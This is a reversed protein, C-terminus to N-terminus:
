KEEYFRQQNEYYTEPIPPIDDEVNDDDVVKKDEGIVNLAGEYVISLVDPPFNEEQEVEPESESESDFDGRLMREEIRLMRQEIERQRIEELEGEKIEENPDRIFEAIPPIDDEDVVKKDEQEVNQRKINNINSSSVVVPLNDIRNQVSDLEELLYKLNRREERPKKLEKRITRRINNKEERLERKKDRRKKNFERYIGKNRKKIERTYRQLQGKKERDEQELIEERSPLGEKLSEIRGELRDLKFDNELDFKIIKLDVQSSDNGRNLKKRSQKMRNLLHENSIVEDDFNTVAYDLMIHLDLANAANRDVFDYEKEKKYMKNISENAKNKLIDRLQDGADLIRNVFHHPDYGEREFENNENYKPYDYETNLFKAWFDLNRLLSHLNIGGNNYNEIHDIVRDILADLLYIKQVYHKATRRRIGQMFQYPMKKWFPLKSM